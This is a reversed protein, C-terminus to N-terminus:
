LIGDKMRYNNDYITRIQYRQISIDRNDWCAIESLREFFSCTSNYSLGQDKLKICAILNTNHSPHKSTLSKILIIDNNMLDNVQVNIFYDELFTYFDIDGDITNIDRYEEKIEYKDLYSILLRNQNQPNIKYKIKKSLYQLDQVDLDFLTDSDIPIDYYDTTINFGNNKYVYSSLPIRFLRGPEAVKLDMTKLKLNDKIYKQYGKIKGSIENMKVIKPQFKLLVHFGGGTFNILLDNDKQYKVFTECDKKAEELGEITRKDHSDFDFFMQSYITYDKNHVNHSVYIPYKNQYMIVQRKFDIFSKVVVQTPCGFYRPFSNIGYIDYMQLNNM